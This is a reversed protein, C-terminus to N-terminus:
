LNEPANEVTIMQYLYNSCGICKDSLAELKELIALLKHHRDIISAKCVPDLDSFERNQIYIPLLREIYEFRLESPTMDEDAIFQLLLVIDEKLEEQQKATLNTKRM